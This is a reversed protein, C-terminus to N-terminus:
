GTTSHGPTTGDPLLLDFGDPINVQDVGTGARDTAGYQWVINKTSPDILAVRNRYDDNVGILGNPLFEALSPHDLMGPGSTPRYSWVIRGERTFEVIGGPKAYDAVLYLDPGIQQPDSPYAIPLQTTWLFKGDRSYESIWSGNIESILVNGDALPTDGNPYGLSHGPDHVCNGTTGIQSIPAGASSIFLVRCNKADAVTMDGNRLLFADDPQDLYGASSGPTGPHGYTWLLRGSPYAIRVIAHNEEENSLVAHGHDVFFADDPFYFGSPPAPRSASPYRWLVHKAADVVILRNNGRDAIQLIGAFPRALAEAVHPTMPVLHVDVVSSLPGGPGEGGALQATDGTVTTAADAVPVPLTGARLTRHTQPDFRSIDFSAAGGVLGGAVYERGALTFASAQTRAAPLRGVVSAHGDRTDIAQIASSAVGGWEGGFVYIVPGSATVAPYRVAVPLQAVTRFTIGDTTALVDSAPATGDYGGVLYATGGVVVASFDARPRPLRGVVDATGSPALRQVADSVHQAGGGFVFHASGITAGAADHTAVALPSASETGTAGLRTIADTTSQNPEIGGAVLIGSGDGFAVARSIPGPLSLTSERAEVALSPSAAAAAHASAGGTRRTPTSSSRGSAFVAFAIAVVAVIAVAISRRRRM